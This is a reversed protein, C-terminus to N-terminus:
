RRIEPLIRPALSDGFPIQSSAQPGHPCSNLATRCTWFLSTRLPAATVQGNAAEVIGVPYAQDGDMFQASQHFRGQQFGTHKTDTFEDYFHLRYRVSRFNGTGPIM